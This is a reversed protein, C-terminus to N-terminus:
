INEIHESLETIWDQNTSESYKKLMDQLFSRRDMNMFKGMAYNITEAQGLVLMLKEARSFGTYILNANLQFKMSNDVIAIIVKCQSGQMKHITIAWSHMLKTLIDEFTIPIMLGDIEVLMRKNGEDIDIIFGEDGNFIDVLNGNDLLIEYQNAINMVKDGVRFVTNGDKGFSKEKKSKDKPNVLEQIKSNIANVGFKGSKQPSVVTVDSVGFMDVSNMYSKILDDFLQEKNTSLNFVCDKGIKIRGNAYPNLFVNGERVNTAVELIGGDKQRFVKTLRSTKIVGSHIMDYLFNGVGVSPLQFDDGIFLVKSNTTISAFLKDMLLIDCMSSEDVLIIGDIESASAKGEKDLGIRRHITSAEFGTYMSQVKSARGTPSLLTIDTKGNSKLLEILTKQLWTKGTGGFGILLSVGNENWNHFFQIQENTLKVNNIKCYEDLFNNIEDVEFMKSSFCQLKMIAKAVNEEAEYIHKNAYKGDVCIVNKVGETLREDIYSKNIGLYGVSVNILQKYKIWSHGNNSEENIVYWICSDIRHKDHKDLGMSQAIADAKIFGVGSLETLIYPNSKLKKIILHSEENYKAILMKITNYRIDYQSLFVIVENYQINKVVKEKIFEYTAKGVGRVHEYDFTDNIFMSVVDDNETYTSYINEVQLQTLITQLYARQEKITKPLSSDIGIIKYSNKYKDDNAYELVVKCERNLELDPFFGNISINSYVEDVRVKSIDEDVVDCSYITFYTNENQYLKRTPIVKVTIHEAM